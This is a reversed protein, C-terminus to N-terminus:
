VGPYAPLGPDDFRGALAETDLVAPLSLPFGDVEPWPTDPELLAPGGLRRLGTATAQDAPRRLLFGPRVPAASKRGAHEGLREICTPLVAAPDDFHVARDQWAPRVASIM